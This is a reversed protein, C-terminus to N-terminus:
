EDPWTIVPNAKVAKGDKILFRCMSSLDELRAEIYGTFTHGPNQDLIVQLAEKVYYGRYPQDSTPIIRSCTKVTLTGDPTDTKREDIDLRVESDKGVLDIMQTAKIENWTLPPTVTIEGSFKSNTGM